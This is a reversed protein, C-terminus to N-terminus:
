VRADACAHAHSRGCSQQLADHRRLVTHPRQSGKAVKRLGSFQRLFPNAKPILYSAKELSFPEGKMSDPLPEVVGGFVTTHEFVRATFLGYAATQAYMDAFEESKLDPVLLTRFSDNQSLLDPDKAVLLENALDRLLRTQGALSKALQSPSTLRPAKEALFSAVLNAWKHEADKSAAIVKGNVTGLSVAMREDGNAFWIFDVYNTVILNPLAELYRKLQPTRLATKLDKDIDKAEVFGIISSGRRVIYDPKNEREVAKPENTAAIGVAASEILTKLAPRHTHETADGQAFEKQLHKLYTEVANATPQIL